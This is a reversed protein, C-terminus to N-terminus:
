PNKFWEFFFSKVKIEGFDDYGIDFFEPYLISWWNNGKGENITILLTKFYGSSVFEGNLSKSPFYTKLYEVKVNLNLNSPLNSILDEKIVEINNKLFSNIDDYQYEKFNNILIRKVIQKNEQDILSNSNSLIRIRIEKTEFKITFIVLIFILILIVKKMCDGFLFIGM